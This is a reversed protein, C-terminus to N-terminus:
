LNAPDNKKYSGAQGSLLVVLTGLVTGGISTPIGAIIAAFLSKFLSKPKPEQSKNKQIWYVGLGTLLFALLSSVPTAAGGLLANAGFFLNDITLILAGSLPHLFFGASRKQNNKHPKM